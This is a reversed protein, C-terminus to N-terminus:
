LVKKKADLQDMQKFLAKLNKEKNCPGCWLHNGSSYMSLMPNPNMYSWGPNKKYFEEESIGCIDCKHDKTSM